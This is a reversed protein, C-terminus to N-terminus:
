EDGDGGEPKPIAARIEEKAALWDAFAADEPHALAYAEMADFLMPDTEAWYRAERASRVAETEAAQRATERAALVEDSAPVLEGNEVTMDQWNQPIEGSIIM